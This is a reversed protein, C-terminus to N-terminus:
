KAWTRPGAAGTEPVAAEIPRAIAAEDAAPPLYRELFVIEAQETDALDQRGGAQFQEISDRRQKVLANM